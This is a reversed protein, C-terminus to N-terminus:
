LSRTSESRPKEVCGSRNRPTIARIATETLMRADSNQFNIGLALKKYNGGFRFAFRWCRSGKPTVLLCLGGGDSVKRSYRVSAGLQSRCNSSSRLCVQRAANALSRFGALLSSM